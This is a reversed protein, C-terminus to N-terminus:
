NIIAKLQLNTATNINRHGIKTLEGITVRIVNNGTYCLYRTTRQPLQFDNEKNEESEVVEYTVEGDVKGDLRIKKKKATIYKYQM